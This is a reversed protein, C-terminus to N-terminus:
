GPSDVNVLTLFKSQGLVELECRAFSLIRDPIPSPAYLDSSVSAPDGHGPLATRVRESEGLMAPIIGPQGLGLGVFSHRPILLGQGGM